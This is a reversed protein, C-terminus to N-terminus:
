SVLDLEKMSNSARYRSLSMGRATVIDAIIRAGVSGNSRLNRQLYTGTLCWSLANLSLLADKVSLLLTVQRLMSIIM